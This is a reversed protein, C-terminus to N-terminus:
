QSSNQFLYEQDAFRLLDGPKLETRTYAQLRRGNLFTGNTSNLDEIAYGESDEKKYIRAHMRSVTGALLIGDANGEPKGVTFPTKSIKLSQGTQIGTGTLRVGSQKQKLLITRTDPDAAQRTQGTNIVSNWFITEEEEEPDTYVPEEEPTKQFRSRLIQFIGKQEPPLKEDAPKEEAKERPFLYRAKLEQQKVPKLCHEIGSFSFPEGSAAAHVSYLTEVLKQDEYDVMTLLGDLLARISNQLPQSHFPNLCFVFQQKQLDTFICAPELVIWDPELLYEYLQQTCLRLSHLLHYLLDRSLANGELLKELSQRASIDYILKRHGNMDRCSVKLLGPISNRCIMPLVYPDWSANEPESIEM